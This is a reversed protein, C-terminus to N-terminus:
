ICLSSGPLSRGKKDSGAEWKRAGDKGSTNQSCFSIIKTSFFDILVVGLCCFTRYLFLSLLATWFRINPSLLTDCWAGLTNARSPAHSTSKFCLYVALKIFQAVQWQSREDVAHSGEAEEEEEEAPLSHMLLESFLRM